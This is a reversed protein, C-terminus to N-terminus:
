DENYAKVVYIAGYRNALYEYVQPNGAKLREGNVLLNAVVNTSKVGLADKAVDDVLENFLDGEHAPVKVYEVEIDKMLNQAKEYYEQAGGSNRSWEGTAHCAVGFYDHFIVLQKDKRVRAYVLAKLGGTLEGTIQREGNNKGTGSDIKFIVGQQTLVLGYSYMDSVKDFSGDVYSHNCGIPYKGESKYSMQNSGFLYKDADAELEFSKYKAGKVGKTVKQCDPWNNYKQNIIREGKFKDFGEKVAYIKSRM